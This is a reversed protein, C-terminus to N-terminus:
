VYIYVTSINLSSLSSTFTYCLVGAYNLQKIKSPEHPWRLPQKQRKAGYTQCPPSNSKNIRFFVLMIRVSFQTILIEPYKLTLRFNRFKRCLTFYMFNFIFNALLVRRPKFKLPVLSSRRKCSCM